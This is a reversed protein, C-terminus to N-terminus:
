EATLRYLFLFGVAAAAIYLVSSPLELSASASPDVYTPVISAETVSEAPSPVAPADQLVPAPKPAAAPKSTPAPTFLGALASSGSQSKKSPAPKAAATADSPAPTFLPSARNGLDELRVDLPALAYRYAGGRDVYREALAGQNPGSPMRTAVNGRAQVDSVWQQTKSLPM